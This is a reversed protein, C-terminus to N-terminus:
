KSVEVEPKSGIITINCGVQCMRGDIMVKGNAYYGKSGSSFEKPLANLVQGDITLQIPKLDDVDLMQANVKKIEKTKAAM